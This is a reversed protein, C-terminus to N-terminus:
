KKFKKWVEVLRKNEKETGVTIRLCNECMAVNSRNRTIINNKVFYNYLKGACTTKILIFNSDSPYVKVVCPLGSVIKMLSKKQVLLKKVFINKQKENKLASLAAKQTLESINYPYKIKDFINIIEKQAFAMGLRIGALGWAKSFTQLIVLNPYDNLKQLLTRDPAFDIYAEDLVVIGDFNRCIKIIDEKRFCNATPNNPSCIFILKTKTTISNLVNEVDIQFNEKLKIKRTKVNNVDAAVQYMGYTPPLLMIEDEAPECFARIVIDIAEDSGNGLFIQPFKVNKIKAIKEKLIRQHPDPYRNAKEKIGVSGYSNENADLFIDATGFFDDRASSYPKLAKINPRIIKDLNFM